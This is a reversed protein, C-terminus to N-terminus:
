EHDTGGIFSPMAILGGVAQAAESAKRQGTGSEDDDACLVIVADPKSVRLAEALKRMNGADFAVVVPYSTAEHITAGTAFGEAICVPKGHEIKGILYGGKEGGPLFRKEGDQNIFQLSTIQGRLKIALMLSKNCDMGGITLSGRYVKAGHSQIGKSKLYPHEPVAPCGAELAGLKANWIADAKAAADSRRKVQEADAALRKAEREATQEPTPPIPRNNTDQVYGGDIALKFLTAITIGGGESFGKWSALAARPDYNDANASWRDWADFGSEGVESKIAMGCDIWTKRDHPGIFTLAQEISSLSAPASINYNSHTTGAAGALATKRQTIDM